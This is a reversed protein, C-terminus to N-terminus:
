AQVTTQGPDVVSLTGPGDTTGTLTPLHVAAGQARVRPNVGLVVTLVTTCPRKPKRCGEIPLGILDGERLVFSGHAEVSDQKASLVVRGGHSCLITANTTLVANIVRM